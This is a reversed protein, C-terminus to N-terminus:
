QTEFSVDDLNLSQTTTATLATFDIRAGTVNRPAATTTTRYYNFERSTTPFDQPRIIISAGPVDGNATIFNVTAMLGVQSGQGQAFFSFVYYCGPSVASITQSLVAGDEMNVSSAGSHVNGQATQQVLLFPTATSWGTPITGSFTEMGGNVVLEGSNTCPLCVSVQYGNADDKCNEMKSNEKAIKCVEKDLLL